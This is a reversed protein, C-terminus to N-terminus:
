CRPHVLASAAPIVCWGDAPEATRVATCWAGELTTMVGSQERRNLSGVMHAGDNTAPTGECDEREKVRDGPV